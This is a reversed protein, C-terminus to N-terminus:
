EAKAKKKEAKELEEPRKRPKRTGIRRQTRIVSILDRQLRAVDAATMNMKIRLVRYAEMPSIAYRKTPRMNGKGILGTTRCIICSRTPTGHEVKLWIGDSRNNCTGCQMEDAYFDYESCTIQRTDPNIFIDYVTLARKFGNALM